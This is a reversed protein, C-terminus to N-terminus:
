QSLQYIETELLHSLSYLKPTITEDTTQLTIKWSIENFMEIPASLEFKKGNTWIADSNTLTKYEVFEWDNISYELKISTWTPIDAWVLVQKITKPIEYQWFDDLKTIIYWSNKYINETPTDFLKVRAIYGDSWRNGAVYLYGKNEWICRIDGWTLEDYDRYEDFPISIADPLINNNKGISYIIHGDGGDDWVYYTIGNHEAFLNDIWDNFREFTFKYGGLALTEAITPSYISRRILQTSEPSVGTNTYWSRTYLGDENTTVVLDNGGMNRVAIVKERFDKFGIVEESQNDLAYMKGSDTYCWLSNGHLTIWVITGQVRFTQSLMEGYDTISTPSSSLVKKIENGDSFFIADNGVVIVQRYDAPNTNVDTVNGWLTWANGDTYNTRVYMEDDTWWYLAWNMEEMAWIEENDWATFVTSFTAGWDNSYSVDGDSTGIWLIDNNGVQYHIATIYTGSFVSTVNAFRKSLEVWKGRRININQGYTYEGVTQIRDDQAIGWYFKDYRVM